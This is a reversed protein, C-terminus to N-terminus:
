LVGTEAGLQPNVMRRSCESVRARRQRRWSARGTCALPFVFWVGWAGVRFHTHPHTATSGPDARVPEGRTHVGAEDAEAPEDTFYATLADTEGVAGQGVGEGAAGGDGDDWEPEATQEATPADWQTVETITNYFYHSAADDEYRYWGNGLSVPAGDDSSM